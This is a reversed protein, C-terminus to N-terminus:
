CASWRTISPRPASPNIVTIDVVVRGEDRRQVLLRQYRVKDSQAFEALDVENIATTRQIPLALVHTGLLESSDNSIRIPIFTDKRGLLHILKGLPPRIPVRDFTLDLLSHVPDIAGYHLYSIHHRVIM